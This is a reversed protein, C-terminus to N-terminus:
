DDDEFFAMASALLEDAMEIPEDEDIALDEETPVYDLEEEDEEEEAAGETSAEPDGQFGMNHLISEDPRYKAFASRKNAYKSGEGILDRRHGVEENGPRDLLYEQIKGEQLNRAIERIEAIM